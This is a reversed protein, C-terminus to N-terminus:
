KEEFCHELAYGHEVQDVFQQSSPRVACVDDKYKNKLPILGPLWTIYDNTDPTYAPFILIV